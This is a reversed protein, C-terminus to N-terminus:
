IPSLPKTADPTIDTQKQSSIFGGILFKATIITILLVVLIFITNSIKGQWTTQSRSASRSVTSCLIMLLLCVVLWIIGTTGRIDVIRDNLALIGVVSVMGLAFWLGSKWGLGPKIKGFIYSIFVLGVALIIVVVVNLGGVAIALLSFLALPIGLIFLGIGSLINDLSRNINENM